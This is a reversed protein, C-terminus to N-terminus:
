GMVPLGPRQRRGPKVINLMGVVLATILCALATAAGLVLREGDWAAQDIQSQSAGMLMLASGAFSLAAGVVCVVGGVIMLGCEVLPMGFRRVLGVIAGAVILAVPLVSLEWSIGFGQTLLFTGVILAVGNVIRLYIM